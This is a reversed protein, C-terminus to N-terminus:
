AGIPRFLGPLPTLAGRMTPFVEDLLSHGDLRASVLSALVQRYDTTVALDIGEELASKELGPWKGYVKGGNVGGGLVLMAAARGHDTGLGSNEQLRRGFETMILVTVRRMGTTGLDKAFAGVSDGVDSLLGAMWGQTTGQGVHTDWGGKDLCAVELGIKARLLCAVQRLGQGLESDPYKAGNSPQYNTPDVKKLADLVTLTSRGAEIVADEGTGYLTALTSAMPSEEPLNLRFDRISRVVTTTPAGRLMDPLMSGFAVARLPSAQPTPQAALYRALWGSKESETDDLLGREMTAKAEFHSRTKDGSGVAQVAALAGDRYFPYLGKLSPHLGFFGDLDLVDKKGLALTPRQRFYGDEGVPAVISLCDAGGRLFLVILSDRTETRDPDAFSAHQLATAGFWASLATMVGGRVFSRRTVAKPKAGYAMGRGDCAFWNEM